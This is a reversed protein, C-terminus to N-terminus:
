HLVPFSIVPLCEVAFGGVSCRGIRSGKEWLLLGCGVPVSRKRVRSSNGAFLELDSLSMGAYWHSDPRLHSDSDLPSVDM